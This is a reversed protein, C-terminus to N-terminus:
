RRAPHGISWRTAEDMVVRSVGLELQQRLWWAPTNAHQHQCQAGLLLPTLTRPEGPPLPEDPYDAYYLRADLDLWMGRWHNRHHSRGAAAERCLALPRNNVTVVQVLRDGKECWGEFIRVRGLLGRRLIETLEPVDAPDVWPDPLSM